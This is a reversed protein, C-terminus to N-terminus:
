TGRAMTDTKSVQDPQRLIWHNSGNTALTSILLHNALEVSCKAISCPYPPTCSLHAYTHMRTTHTHTPPHTPPHTHTIPPYTHIPHKNTHSCTHQHTPTYISTNQTHIHTDQPTQNSYVHTPNHPKTYVERVVMYDIVYKVKM